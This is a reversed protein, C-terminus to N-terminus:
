PPPLATAASKKARYVAKIREKLEHLLESHFMNNLHAESLVGQVVLEVIM